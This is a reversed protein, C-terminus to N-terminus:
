ASRGVAVADEEQYQLWPGNELAPSRKPVVPLVLLHRDLYFLIGADLYTYTHLIIYTHIYICIYGSSSNSNAGIPFVLDVFPVVGLSSFTGTTRNPIKWVRLMWHTMDWGDMMMWGNTRLSDGNFEGM